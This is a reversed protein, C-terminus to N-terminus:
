FHTYINYDTFDVRLINKIVRSSSFYLWKDSPVELLKFIRNVNFLINNEM